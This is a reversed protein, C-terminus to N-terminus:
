YILIEVNGIFLFGHRESDAKAILEVVVGDVCNNAGVGLAVCGELLEHVAFVLDGNAERHADLHATTAAAPVADVRRILVTRDLLQHESDLQDLAEQLFLFLCYLCLDLQQGRDHTVGAQADNTETICVGFTLVPIHACRRWGSRWRRIFEVRQDGFELTSLPSFMSIWIVELIVMCWSPIAFLGRPSGRRGFCGIRLSRRTATSGSPTVAGLTPVSISISM